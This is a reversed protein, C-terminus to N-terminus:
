LYMGDLNNVTNWPMGCMKKNVPKLSNELASYEETGNFNVTCNEVKSKLKSKLTNRKEWAQDNKDTYIYAERYPKGGICCLFVLIFM